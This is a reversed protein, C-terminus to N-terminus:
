KLNASEIDFSFEKEFKKEFDFVNDFDEIRDSERATMWNNEIMIYVIEGIDRTTKIGWHNLVVRSLRGWRKKALEAIGLSLEAGSIHRSSKESQNARINKITEGLGEYIFRL